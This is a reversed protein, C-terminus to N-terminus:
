ANREPWTITVVHPASSATHVLLQEKVPLSVRELTAGLQTLAIQEVVNGVWTDIVVIHSSGVCALAQGTPDFALPKLLQGTDISHLVQQTRTDIIELLTIAWGPGFVRAFRKAGPAPLGWGLSQRSTKALDLYFYEEVVSCVLVEDASLWPGFTQPKERLVIKRQWVPYPKSPPPDILVVWVDETDYTNAPRSDGVIRLLHKSGQIDAGAMWQMVAPDAGTEDRAPAAASPAPASPASPTASPAASARPPLKGARTLETIAAQVRVDRETERRADDAATNAKIHRTLLDRVANALQQIPKDTSM